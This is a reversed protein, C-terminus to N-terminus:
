EEIKPTITAKVAEWNLNLSESKFNEPLQYELSSKIRSNNNPHTMLIELHENPSVIKDNLRRFFTALAKPDLKSREM